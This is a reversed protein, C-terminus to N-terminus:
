APGRGGVQLRSKDLRRCRKIDPRPARTMAERSGCHGLPRWSDGSVPRDCSKVGGWLGRGRGWPSASLETREKESQCCKPLRAPAVGVARSGATPPDSFVRHGAQRRWVKRTRTKAKIKRRDRVTVRQDSYWQTDENPGLLTRLGKPGVQGILDMRNKLVPQPHFYIHIPWPDRTDKSNWKIANGPLLMILEWKIKNGTEKEKRKPRSWINKKEWWHISYM